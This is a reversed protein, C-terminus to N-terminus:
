RRPEGWDEWFLLHSRVRPNAVKDLVKV